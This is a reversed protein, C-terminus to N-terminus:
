CGLGLRLYNHIHEASGSTAEMELVATVEVHNGQSDEHIEATAGYGVIEEGVVEAVEDSRYCDVFALM